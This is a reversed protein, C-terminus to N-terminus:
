KKERLVMWAFWPIKRLRWLRRPEQCVRFAWELGWREIWPPAQRLDGAWVDFLGGVGIGVHAGIMALHEALWMEQRPQGLGALVVEPKARRVAEALVEDSQYGHAFGAIELKPYRRKLRAAAREAVGPKAGALYVAQGTKALRAMLCEALHVGSVREAAVGRRRLAWVVGVGDPVVLDAEALVRHYSPNQRAAIVTLPNATVVLHPKGSPCALWDGIVEVAEAVNV